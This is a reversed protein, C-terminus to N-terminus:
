RHMRGVQGRCIPWEKRPRNAQEHGEHRQHLPVSLGPGGEKDPVAYLQFKLTKGHSLDLKDRSPNTAGM